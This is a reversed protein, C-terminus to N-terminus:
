KILEDINYDPEIIEGNYGIRLAIKTAGQIYCDYILQEALMSKKPFPYGESTTKVWTKGPIYCEKVSLLIHGPYLREVKSLDIKIHKKL